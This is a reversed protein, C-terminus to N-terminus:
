MLSEESVSPFFFDSGKRYTRSSKRKRDEKARKLLELYVCALVVQLVELACLGVAGLVLKDSFRTVYNWMKGLCGEFYHTQDKQIPYKACAGPEFSTRRSASSCCAIPTQLNTLFLTQNFVTLTFDRKFRSYEFDRGNDVGCCPLGIMAMNWTVSVPDTATDGRYSTMLSAKLPSRVWDQIIDNRLFCLVTLSIKAVVLTGTAVIYTTLLWHRKSWLGSIGFLPPLLIIFTLVLFVLAVWRFVKTTDYDDIVRSINYDSDTFTKRLDAVASSLNTLIFRKIYLKDFRVFLCTVCCTVGILVQVANFIILVCKISRM